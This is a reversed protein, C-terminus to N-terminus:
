TASEQALHRSECYGAVFDSHPSMRAANAAIRQRLSQLRETLASETLTDALREYARPKVGQGMLVSLWSDRSFLGYQYSPLAARSRFLDLKHQLSDPIQMARAYDWLPQGHRANAFYHLVLFDRVREYQLENLRNFEKALRSDTAPCGPDPLLRILDAVAAQVLFISTSELPELFGSALGIAVCNQSWAIRRRGPLFKLLRPEALPEADLGALVTRRATEEDTFRSSFVYGNGTRHQLPIRWCWGAECATARTYPTMPEVRRSPVALARDCSLWQNWDEWGVGLTQGLLLSRFGSCDVFLDGTVLEGSKLLLANIEGGQPHRKVQLVQGEIRAVGRPLAWARLHSAYLGADFHYAYAYTSRISKPDGNPFEFANGRAAAIAYSYDQLPGPDAGMLGAKLWQHQFEVGRWPEGFAGFPHMYSEGPQGWDRFQIGLKFTAHTARMFEAENLGLADNFLKIHPLTAEGVGVTGIEDSEILTISYHEPKLQRRLGAATMWGATGGGLIVIRM